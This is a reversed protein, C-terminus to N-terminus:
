TFPWDSGTLFGGSRRRAKRAIASAVDSWDQVMEESSAEQARRCAASYADTGLNAILANAEFAVGLRLGRQHQGHAM